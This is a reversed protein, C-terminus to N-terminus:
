LQFSMAASQPSFQMQSENNECAPKGREGARVCVYACMCACGREEM